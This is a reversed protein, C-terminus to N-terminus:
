ILSTIKTTLVILNLSLKLNVTVIRSKGGLFPWDSIYAWFHGPIFDPPKQHLRQNVWDFWQEGLQDVFTPEVESDVLSLFIDSRKLCAGIAFDLWSQCRDFTHERTQPRYIIELSYRGNSLSVQNVPKDTFTRRSGIAPGTLPRCGCKLTLDYRKFDARDLGELQEFCTVLQTINPSQQWSLDTEPHRM